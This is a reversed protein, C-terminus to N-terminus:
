AVDTRNDILAQWSHLTAENKILWRKLEAARHIGSAIAELQEEFSGQNDVPDSPISMVLGPNPRQKTATKASFSAGIGMTDSELRSRIDPLARGWGAFTVAVYNARRESGRGLEHAFRRPRIDRPLEALTKNQDFIMSTSERPNAPKLM